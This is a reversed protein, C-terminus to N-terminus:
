RTPRSLEFVEMKSLDVNDIKIVSQELFNFRLCQKVTRM